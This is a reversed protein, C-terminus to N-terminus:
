GKYQRGCKHCASIAESHGAIHKKRLGSIFRSHWMERISKEAANGLYFDENVVLCAYVKGNWEVTLRQWLQECVFNRRYAAPKISREKKDLGKYNIYSSHGLSDVIKGFVKNFIGIEEQNAKMDVMQIRIIPYTLKMAKKMKVFREINNKVSEFKAGRRISEYTEKVPSDVSFILRTLGAELLKRSIDETLLTANTHMFLDLIKRERAYKIMETIDKHLLPEGNGTLHVACCGEKVAEDIIKKYLGTDLFGTEKILGKKLEMTRRCMVCRLNCRNTVHIDLNLPFNSVHKEKPYKFWNKRYEQYAHRGFIDFAEPNFITELMHDHEIKKMINRKSNM